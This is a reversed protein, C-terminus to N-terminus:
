RMPRAASAPMTYEPVSNALLLPQILFDFGTTRGAAVDELLSSHSRPVAASGLNRLFCVHLHSTVFSCRLQRGPIAAALLERHGAQWLRRRRRGKGEQGGGKGEQGAKVVCLNQDRKGRSHSHLETCAM